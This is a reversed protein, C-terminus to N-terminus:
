STKRFQTIMVLNRETVGFLFNSVINLKWEVKEGDPGTHAYQRESFINRWTDIGFQSKHQLCTHWLESSYHPVVIVIWGGVMLIRQFEALVRIPDSLHDLTFYCIIGAIRGDDIPVPEGSEADWEEYDFNLWSPHNIHKFGSGFQVYRQGSLHETIPWDVDRLLAIKLHDELTYPRPFRQIEQESM